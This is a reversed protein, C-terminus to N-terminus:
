NKEKGIIYVTLPITIFPIFVMEILTELTTGLIVISLIDSWRMEFASLRIPAFAILLFIGNDMIQGAITSTIARVFFLLKSDKGACKSKMSVMIHVNIYNGIWFAIFSAIVTRIGNSFIQSFAINQEAYTGPLFILLQALLVVSLNLIGALTFCKVSAKKGYAESMVDMVLFTIWSVLTGGGMLAFSSTGVAKMEFINAMVTFVCYVCMLIPLYMKREKM